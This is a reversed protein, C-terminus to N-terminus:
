IYENQMIQNVIKRIYRRNVPHCEWGTDLEVKRLEGPPLHRADRLIEVARYARYTGSHQNRLYTTYLEEWIQGLPRYGDEEPSTKNTVVPPKPSGTVTAKVPQSDSPNPTLINCKTVSDRHQEVGSRNNNNEQRDLDGQFPSTNDARIKPDNFEKKTLGPSLGLDSAPTKLTHNPSQKDFWEPDNKWPPIELYEIFSVEAGEETKDRSIIKIKDPNDLEWLKRVLTRREDDKDWGEIVIDMGDPCPPEDNWGNRKNSSQRTSRDYWGHALKSDVEIARLIALPSPDDFVEESHDKYKLHRRVKHRGLVMDALAIRKQEISLMERKIRNKAEEEIEARAKKKLSETVSTVYDEVEPRKLLRAAATRAAEDNKAGYATKYAETADGTRIYEMAFREQKRNM